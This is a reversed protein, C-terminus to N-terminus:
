KITYFYSRNCPRARPENMNAGWEKKFIWLLLCRQPHGKAYIRIKLRCFLSLKWSNLPFISKNLSWYITAEVASELPLKGVSSTPFLYIIIPSVSNVSVPNCYPTWNANLKPELLIAIRFQLKLLSLTPFYESQRYMYVSNFRQSKETM